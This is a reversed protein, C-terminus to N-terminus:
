TLAVEPEPNEGIYDGLEELPPGAISPSGMGANTMKEIVEVWETGRKMLRKLWPRKIKYNHQVNQNYEEQLGDREVLPFFDRDVASSNYSYTNPLTIAIDGSVLGLVQADKQAARKLIEQDAHKRRKQAFTESDKWEQRFRWLDDIDTELLNPLESAADGALSLQETVM